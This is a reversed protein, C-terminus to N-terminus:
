PSTASKKETDGLSKVKNIFDQSANCSQSCATGGSGPPPAMAQLQKHQEILLKKKEVLSAIRTDEYQSPAQYLFKRMKIPQGDRLNEDPNLVFLNSSAPDIQITFVSENRALIEIPKYRVINNGDTGESVEWVFTEGKENRSLSSFPLRFANQNHELIIKGATIEKPSVDPNDQLDIEVLAKDDNPIIATVTGLSDKLEGNQAYLFVRQGSKINASDASPIEVRTMPGEPTINIAYTEIMRGNSPPSVEYTTNNETLLDGASFTAPSSGSTGTKLSARKEHFKLGIAFGAAIVVFAVITGVLIRSSTIV